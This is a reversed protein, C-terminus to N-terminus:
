LCTPFSYSVLPLHTACLPARPSCVSGRASHQERPANACMQATAPPPRTHAHSPEPLTRVWQRANWFKGKSMNVADRWSTTLPGATNPRRPDTPQFRGMMQPLRVGRASTPHEPPKRSKPIPPVYVTKSDASRRKPATALKIFRGFEVLAISNSNDDDVACWLVKIQEESFVKSSIKFKRRVVMRLEDFTLLGSADDDIEKFVLLWAIGPHRDPMYESVWEAFMTAMQLKEADNAPPIGQAALEERMEATNVTSVFGEAALEAKKHEELMQRKSRAREQLIQQRTEIKKLEPRGMFTHFEASEIYGNDDSDMALWLAKM